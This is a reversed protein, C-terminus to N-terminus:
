TDVEDGGTPAAAAPPHDFHRSMARFLSRQGGGLGGQSVPAVDEAFGDPNAKGPAMSAKRRFSRNVGRLNKLTSQRQPAPRSWSGSSESGDDDDDDDDSDTFFDDANSKLQVRTGGGGAFVFEDEDDDDDAAGFADFNNLAHAMEARQLIQLAREADLGVGQVLPHEKLEDATKRKDPDFLLCSSVFDYVEPMERIPALDIFSDADLCALKNQIAFQNGWHSFPPKGTAMEMVLAGLSWVDAPQGFGLREPDDEGDGPTANMAEPSMYGMTGRQAYVREGPKLRLATGFDGLKCHGEV